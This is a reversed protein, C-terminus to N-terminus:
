TTAPTPNSGVVKPNHTVRPVRINNVKRCSHRSLLVSFYANTLSNPTFRSGTEQRRYPCQFSGAVFFQPVTSKNLLGAPQRRTGHDIPQRWTGHDAPQRRTGHDIPQGGPGMNPRMSTAALRTIEATQSTTERM